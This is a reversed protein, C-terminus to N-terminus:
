PCCQSNPSRFHVITWRSDIWINSSRTRFTGLKQNECRPTGKKSLESWSCFALESTSVDLCSLRFEFLWFTTRFENNRFSVWTKYCLERSEYKTREPHSNNKKVESSFVVKGSWVHLPTIWIRYLKQKEGLELELYKKTTQM